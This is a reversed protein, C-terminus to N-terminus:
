PAGEGSLRPLRAAVSLLMVQREGQQAHGGRHIAEPDFLNLQGRAGTLVREAALLAETDPAGPLLDGGFEAKVQLETPLCAFDRRKGFARSVMQSRDYARRRIRDIGGQDWLHSTPIIGFPGQEPGVDNLYLVVKMTCYTSSDIHMGVTPPTELGLDTFLNNCWAQGPQNVMVAAAKLKAGPAGFYDSSAAVLGARKVTEAAQSWIEGHRDPLVAEQSAKFSVPEGSAKLAAIRAQIEAVLPAAVQHLPDLLEPELQRVCFGQASIERSIGTGAGHHFGFRARREREAQEVEEIFPQLQAAVVLGRKRHPQFMGGYAPHAAYDVHPLSRAGPDGHPDVAAMLSM